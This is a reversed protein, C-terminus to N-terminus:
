SPAIRIQALANALRDFTRDLAEPLVKTGAIASMFNTDGNWRPVLHAHLHGVVGAGAAAGLNVGMNFGHPEYEHRLAAEARALLRLLDEREEASLAVFSDIHRFPAVMLHGSNYPFANLVIFCARGRELVLARRDDGAAPKECLICGKPSESAGKRGSEIYPMRWTAWLREV